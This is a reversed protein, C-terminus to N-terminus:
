SNTLHFRSAMSRSPPISDSPSHPRIPFPTPHPIPEIPIPDSPSHPRIPIPDSPSRPRYFHPSPVKRSLDPVADMGDILERCKEATFKVDVSQGILQLEDDDIFGSGDTDAMGFISGLKGCNVADGIPSTHNPTVSGADSGVVVVSEAM